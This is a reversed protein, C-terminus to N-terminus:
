TRHVSKVLILTCAFSVFAAYSETTKECRLAVRKFRKLKGM